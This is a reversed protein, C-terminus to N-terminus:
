ASAKSTSIGVTQHHYGIALCYALAYIVLSFAAIVIFDEGFTIVHYGGFSGFYSITAMGLMYVIVWSGKMINLDDLSKKNFLINGALMVYGIGFLVMIKYMIGWGAWYIMLNCIYFASICLSHMVSKPVRGFQEAKTQSLVMLSMPGVVYGLVLCSVLFGVMHQWSPFPLFFLFGICMNILMAKKPAGHQNLKMLFKPFYGNQSMAYTMRGTAMAQVMATGFPSITADIYLAKVFWFCGFMTLLGVFPGHDGAYSLAAWGHTLSSSPIAGIFATQVVVYLLICIILSGFVAIPIDRKPNKSESALQIAPNFGIFSYIVGALPLAAFVSHLGYPMFSHKGGIFNSIHFSHNFLILATVIPIFLKFALILHNVKSYIKVGYNNISTIIIMCGMAALMGTTTLVPSAGTTMLHPIYISSYQILAMTEIPSVAIWALWAIWSFSYGAFHGHSLQFFRVTGGAIPIARTLLVFTAAVVMMLLGAIFWCVISAPGAIKACVMPGLLWGSGVIGAIASALLTFRNFSQKFEM